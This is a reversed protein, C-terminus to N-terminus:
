CLFSFYVWISKKSMVVLVLINQEAQITILIDDIHYVDDAKSKLPITWVFRLVIEMAVLLHRSRSTSYHTVLEM